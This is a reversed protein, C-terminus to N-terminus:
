SENEPLEEVSSLNDVKFEIRELIKKIEDFMIAIQFGNGSEKKRKPWIAHGCSICKFDPARPNRKNERNDWFDTEQQCVPCQKKIRPM